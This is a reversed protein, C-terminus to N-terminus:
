CGYVQVAEGFVGLFVTGFHVHQARRGAAGAAAALEALEHKFGQFAVSDNRVLNVCVAAVKSEGRVM